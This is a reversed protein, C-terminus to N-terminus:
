QNSLILSSGNTGAVTKSGNDGGCIEYTTGGGRYCVDGSSKGTSVGAAQARDTTITGSLPASSLDQPPNDGRFPNAPYNGNTGGIFGQGGPYYPAIGSALSAYTGGSDTAYSETSLQCTHMNSKVQSVKAKMQAGIFNPLAIAALIGIIVVVVLLEILTFGGYHRAKKM